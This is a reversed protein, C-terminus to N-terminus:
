GYKRICRRKPIEKLRTRDELNDLEIIGVREIMDKELQEVVVIITHPSEKSLVKRKTGALSHSRTKLRDGLVFASWPNELMRTYCEDGVSTHRTIHFPAHIPEGNETELVAEWKSEMKVERSSIRTALRFRVHLFDAEIFIYPEPNKPFVDM